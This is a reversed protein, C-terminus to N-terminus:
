PMCIGVWLSHTGDQACGKSFSNWGNKLEGWLPAAMTVTATVGNAGGTIKITPEVNMPMCIDGRAQITFTKTRNAFANHETIWASIVDIWRCQEGSWFWSRDAADPGGGDEDELRVRKM